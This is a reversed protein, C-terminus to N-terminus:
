GTGKSISKVVHSTYCPVWGQEGTVKGEGDIADAWTYYLKLRCLPMVPCPIRKPTNRKTKNKNLPAPRTNSYVRVFDIQREGVYSFVFEAAHQTRSPANTDGKAPTRNQWIIPGKHQNYVSGSSSSSSKESPAAAHEFALKCLLVRPYATTPAAAGGGSLSREAKIKSDDISPYTVSYSSAGRDASTNGHTTIYDRTAADSTVRFVWDQLKATSVPFQQMQTCQSCNPLMSCSQFNVHPAEVFFRPTPIVVPVPTVPGPPSSAFASSSGMSSPGSRIENDTVPSRALPTLGSASLNSMNHHMEQKVLHSIHQHPPSVHLLSTPLQPPTVQLMVPNGPSTALIGAVVPPSTSHAAVLQGYYDTAAAGVAGGNHQRQAMAAAMMQQHHLLTQPSSAMSSLMANNMSPPPSPTMGIPQPGNAGNSHLSTGYLGSSVMGKGDISSAQHGMLSLALGGDATMGMTQPSLGLQDYPGSSPLVGPVNMPMSPVHGIPAVSMPPGMVSGSMSGVMGHSGSPRRALPPYQGGTAGGVPSSLPQLHPNPPLHPLGGNISMSSLSAMLPLTSTSAIPSQHPQHLVPHSVLSTHHMGGYANNVPAPAGDVADVSGAADTMM